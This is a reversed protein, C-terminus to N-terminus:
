TETVSLHYVDAVNVAGPNDFFATCGAINDGSDAENYFVGGNSKVQCTGSSLRANSTDRVEVWLQAGQSDWACGSETEINIGIIKSVDSPQGTIVDGGTQDVTQGYLIYTAGIVDGCRNVDGTGNALTTFDVGLSAAAGWVMTFVIGGVALAALLRKM